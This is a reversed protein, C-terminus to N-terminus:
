YMDFDGFTFQWRKLEGFHSAAKNFIKMTIPIPWSRFRDPCSRFGMYSLPTDLPTGANVMSLMVPVKNDRFYKVSRKILSLYSARDEALADVIVGLRSNKKDAIYVVSYGSTRDGTECSFVVYGSDPKEVFRWDLFKKDRVCMTWGRDKIRDWLDDFSRDFGQVEMVKVGNAKFVPMGLFFLKLFIDILPRLLVLLSRLIANKGSIRDLSVPDISDIKVSIKLNGIKNHGAKISGNYASKNPLGFVASFGKEATDLSSFYELLNYAGLGRYDKHIMTNVSVAALSEEGSSYVRLPLVIYQGMIKGEARAVWINALGAPNKKYLWKFYEKGRPDDKDHTETWFRLLDSEEEDGYIFPGCKFINSTANLIKQIKKHPDPM